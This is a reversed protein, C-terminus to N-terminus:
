SETRDGDDSDNYLWPKRARAARELAEPPMTVGELAALPLRPLDAADVPLWVGAWPEPPSGLVATAVAVTAGELAARANRERRTSGFAFLVWAAVGREGELIEYGRLKAVLRSLTETGRDWELFFEVQFGGDRWRGWGDPRVVGPASSGWGSGSPSLWSAAEPETRWRILRAEPDRRARGVLAAHFGNVDTIHGLRQSGSLALARGETWRREAAVPDEGAQAAAIGAGTRSLVYHFPASGWAERYPRFRDLLGLRHLEVLRVRARGPSDFFMEAIQETTLVGFRRLATLVARDRGTVRHLLSSATVASSRGRGSSLPTPVGRQLRSERRGPSIDGQAAIETEDRNKTLGERRARPQAGPQGVPGSVPRAPRAATHDDLQQDGTHGDM